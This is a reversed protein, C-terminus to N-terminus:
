ASVGDMVEVDLTPPLDGPELAGMTDLLLNAQATASQAPRFFQYAGRIVGADKAGAWNAAFKSDLHHTGDSLRIFAFDNGAAKVQPWDIHGEYYSVDIGHADSARPAPSSGSRRASASSVATSSCSKWASTM